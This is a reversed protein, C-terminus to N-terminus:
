ECGAPGRFGEGIVRCGWLADFRMCIFLWKTLRYGYKVTALEIKAKGCCAM